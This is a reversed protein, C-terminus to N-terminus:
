KNEQQKKSETPKKRSKTLVNEHKELIDKAERYLQQDDKHDFRLKNQSIFKLTSSLRIFYKTTSNAALRKDYARELNRANSAALGAVGRNYYNTTLCRESPTRTAPTTFVRKSYNSLQYCYEPAVKWRNKDNEKIYGALTMFHSSAENLNDRRLMLHGIEFHLKLLENLYATSDKQQEFHFYAECLLRSIAQLDENHGARDLEPSRLAALSEPTISLSPYNATTTTKSKVAPNQIPRGVTEQAKGEHSVFSNDTTQLTRIEQLFTSINWSIGIQFPSSYGISGENQPVKETSTAAASPAKTITKPSPDDLKHSAEVAIPTVAIAYSKKVSSGFATASEETKRRASKEYGPAMHYASAQTKGHLPPTAM